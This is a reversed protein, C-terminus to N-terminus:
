RRKPTVKSPQDGHIFIETQRGSCEVMSILLRAQSSVSVGDFSGQLWIHPIVSSPISDLWALVDYAFAAFVKGRVSIVTSLCSQGNETCATKYEEFGDAVTSGDLKSHLCAIKQGGSDLKSHLCAIKQGGAWTQM